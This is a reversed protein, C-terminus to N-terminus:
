LLFPPAGSEAVTGLSCLVKKLLTSRLFGFFSSPAGDTSPYMAGEGDLGDKVVGVSGNVFAAPCRLSGIVADDGLINVGVSSLLDVIGPLLRAIALADVFRNM